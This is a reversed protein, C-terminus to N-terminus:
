ENSLKIAEESSNYFNEVVLNLADDRTFHSNLRKSFYIRIEELKKERIEDLRSDYTRM